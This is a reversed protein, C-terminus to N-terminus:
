CVRVGVEREREIANYVRWGSDYIVGVKSEISPPTPTESSSVVGEGRLEILRYIEMLKAIIEPSKEANEISFQITTLGM